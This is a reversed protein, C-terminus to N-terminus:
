LKKFFYTFTYKLNNSKNDVCKLGFKEYFTIARSNGINVELEMLTIHEDKLHSLCNNMLKGAIGMGEFEKLVSVNSVFATKDDRFYVAILGVLVDKCWAEFRNSKEFLKISYDHLDVRGSLPPVFMKDCTKLHLEIDSQMSRNQTIEIDSFNIM